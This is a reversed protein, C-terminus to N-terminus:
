STLRSESATGTILEFVERPNHATTWRSPETSKDHVLLIPRCGAAEGAECDSVRDGVMYSRPLDIGIEAAARRLLGPNPKRCDCNVEPVHPCYYIADLTVGRAFLLARFRSDVSRAQDETIWGRGIGSQNSIVVLLYGAARLNLLLQTAGPLLKVEDPSSLYGTDIILTGDRDFFVAPKLATLEPV